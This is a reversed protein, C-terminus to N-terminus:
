DTFEFDRNGHQIFKKEGKSVPQFEEHINVFIDPKCPYFEQKTGMIVYDNPSTQMTGELTRIDITHVGKLCDAPTDCHYSATGGQASIWNIIETASEATGDWQVADVQVPKKVYRKLKM